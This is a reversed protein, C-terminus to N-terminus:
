MWVSYFSHDDGLGQKYMWGFMYLSTDCNTQLSLINSIRLVISRNAVGFPPEVLLDM